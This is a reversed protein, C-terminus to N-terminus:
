MLMKVMVLVLLVKLLNVQMMMLLLQVGGLVLLVVLLLRFRLRLGGVGKLRHRHGAGEWGSGGVKGGLLLLVLFLLGAVGVPGTVVVVLCRVILHVGRKCLM